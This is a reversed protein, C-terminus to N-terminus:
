HMRLTQIRANLITNASRLIHLPRCGPRPDFTWNNNVTAVASCAPVTDKAYLGNRLRWTETYLKPEATSQQM